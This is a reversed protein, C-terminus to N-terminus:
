NGIRITFPDALDFGSLDQHLKHVTFQLSSPQIRCELFHFVRPSTKDPCIDTYLQEAETRLPHLLGGGGGIVLFDKGKHNFHEYAHAHGSIFVRCKGTLMFPGVFDDRVERSADVITSNTFPPHHCVVVIAHVATDRQYDSLKDRYWARQALEEDDSLHSFNSNLTIFAANGIVTAYWSSTFTPFRMRFQKMSLFPFVYYDHNGLVPYLPFRLSKQFADFPRWCADFMGVATFDGLHFLAEASPHRAIASFLTDTAAENNTSRLRLTEILLPQQTDSLFLVTRTSDASFLAPPFYSLIIVLILVYKM